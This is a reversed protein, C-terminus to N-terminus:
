AMQGGNQRFDQWFDPYSKGVAEAGRIIMPGSCCESAAAAAMAIRHDNVTDIEGGTLQSVGWITMGDPAEEVRVGLRTLLDAMASLRDSEKLRLRGAGVIRSQGEATAALVALIPMLDPCQSVDMDIGHRVSPQAVWAGDQWEVQGGMQRILPIIVADGQLSTKPLNECRVARGNVGFAFWFAAQSFDGEVSYDAAHYHQAGPITYFRGDESVDISIGYRKLVGLTLDVYPRSELPTTVRLTSPHDLLPLAFLLGSIFQSSVNGPMKYDGPKLTGNLILPLADTGETKWSIQSAEFIPRYPELPRKPLRGKGTLIVNKANIAALPMLFRVTSGSEHCDLTINGVFPRGCGKIKLKSGDANLKEIKAGLAELVGCTAVIDESVLLHELTSEGDALAACILARHSLSKSPPVQVTGGIPNPQITIDM